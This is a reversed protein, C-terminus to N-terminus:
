LHEHLVCACVCVYMQLTQDDFTVHPCARKGGEKEEIETDAAKDCFLLFLPLRHLHDVFPFPLSNFLSPLFDVIDACRLHVWYKALSHPPMGGAWINPM